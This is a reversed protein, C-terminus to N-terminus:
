SLEAARFNALNQKNFAFYMICWHSLSFYICPLYLGVFSKKLISYYDYTKYSYKIGQIYGAIMFMIPM